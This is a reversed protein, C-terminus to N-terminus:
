ENEASEEYYKFNDENYVETGVEVWDAFIPTRDINLGEEKM